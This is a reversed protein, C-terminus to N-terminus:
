NSITRFSDIVRNASFVYASHRPLHAAAVYSFSNPLITGLLAVTLYYRLAMANLPMSQGTLKVVIGLVIVAVVLQWFILGPPQHGTSVALKTLPITLAWALGFLTLSCLARFHSM